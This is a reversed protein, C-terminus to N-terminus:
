NWRPVAVIIDFLNKVGTALRIPSFDAQSMHWSPSVRLDRPQLQTEPMEAISIPVKRHTVHAITDIVQGVSSSEGSGILSISYQRDLSNKEIAEFLLLEAADTVHIYDRVTNLPVYIHLAERTAAATCMRNILGQRPGAWPGYLNTLRSIHVNFLQSLQERSYEEIAIKDRGYQNIARVESKVSFPPNSSGGYVGGVSSVITISSGHLEHVSSIANVFDYFSELESSANVSSDLVGQSGAAWIITADTGESFHAFEQSISHFRGARMTSQDWPIADHTFLDFAFGPAKRSVTSGLFGGRGLIWLTRRREM